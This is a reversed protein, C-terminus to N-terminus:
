YSLNQKPAILSKQIEPKTWNNNPGESFTSLLNLNFSMNTLALFFVKQISWFQLTM